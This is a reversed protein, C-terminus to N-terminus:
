YLVSAPLPPVIKLPQHPASLVRRIHKPYMVKRVAELILYMSQETQVQLM